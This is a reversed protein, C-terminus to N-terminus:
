NIKSLIDIFLLKTGRRFIKGDDAGDRGGRWIGPFNMRLRMLDDYNLKSKLRSFLSGLHEGM